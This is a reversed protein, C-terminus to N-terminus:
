KNLREKIQKLYGEYREHESNVPFSFRSISYTNLNKNMLVVYTKGQNLRVPCVAHAQERKPQGKITDGTKLTGKLSKLVTGEFNKMPFYMGTSDFVSSDIKLILINNYKKFNDIPFKEPYAYDKCAISNHSFLIFALLVLLSLISRM